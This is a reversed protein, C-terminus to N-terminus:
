FNIEKGNRDRLVYRISTVLETRDSDIDKDGRPAFEWEKLSKLSSKEFLGEPWSVLIQPNTTKGADTLDFQVISFGSSYANTPMKPPVRVLPQPEVVREKDYPWCRCVGLEEAEKLKGERALVSRMYAWRGLAKAAFPHEDPRYGDLAEMVKQYSLAAEVRDGGAEQGYGQYMYALVPQFTKIGDNSNSFAELAKKATEGAKENNGKSAYYGAQTTLAEGYFTSQTLNNEEAYAITKKAVQFARNKNSYGNLLKIFDLNRELYVFSAEEEGYKSSLEISRKFAESRIANNEKDDPGKIKAYNIALDGTTKHDGFVTEGMQWAEYAHKRAAVADGSKLATNYSKYLANVESKSQAFATSGMLLALGLPLLLKKM